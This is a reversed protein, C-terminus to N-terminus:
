ERSVDRGFVKTILWDNMVLTRNHLSFLTSLYASRWFLYTLVGGSAINGNMFPLDVIAKESRIYALLGQHSYHFPRFKVRAELAERRAIGKLLRGLYAGQQSAVQATPAYSTATCYEIAFITGPPFSTSSDKLREYVSENATVILSTPIRPLRIKKRTKKKENAVGVMRLYDDVVIGRRNTLWFDIHSYKWMQDHLTGVGSEWSKLMCLGQYRGFTFHDMFQCFYPLKLAQATAELRAAAKSGYAMARSPPERSAPRPLVLGMLDLMVDMGKNGAVWVVMGYPIEDLAGGPTPPPCLQTQSGTLIEIRSEKFMSETYDILQKSFMPLVSPLAKVLTIRIRLEVGTPGGGDFVDEQQGLWSALAQRM